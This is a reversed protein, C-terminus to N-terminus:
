DRNSRVFIRLSSVSSTPPSPVSSIHVSPVGDPEGGGFVLGPQKQCFYAILICFFHSSFASLIHARFSSRRTRWRRLSIGAAESLSVCHPYLLLPLLLCQPYTCPLFETQDAVASFQDRSSRVFIRLSSVSSTPPSPVLSIHVSPVGHPGLACTHIAMLLVPNPGHLLLLSSSGVM